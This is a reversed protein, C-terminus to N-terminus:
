IWSHYYEREILPFVIVEDFWSYLAKTSRTPYAHIQYTFLTWDWPVPRLRLGTTLRIVVIPNLVRGRPICVLCNGKPPLGPTTTVHPCEHELPRPNSDQHRISSPCSMKWMSKNYFNYQKNSFVSFLRFLPRSQGMQLAALFALFLLNTRPRTMKRLYDVSQTYQSVLKPQEGHKRLYNTENHMFM